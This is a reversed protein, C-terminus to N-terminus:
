LFDIKLKVKVIQAMRSHLCQEPETDCLVKKEKENGKEVELDLILLQLEEWANDSQGEGLAFGILIHM